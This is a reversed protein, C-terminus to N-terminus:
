APVGMLAFAYKPGAKRDRTTLAIFRAGTLTGFPQPEFAPAHLYIPMPQDAKLSTSSLQIEQRIRALLEQPSNLEAHVSYIWNWQQQSWSGLTLRGDELNVLWGSDALQKRHTQLTASFATQISKVRLQPQGFHGQLVTFLSQPIAVSLRSRGPGEASFGFHWEASAHTGYVDDFNLRAMALEEAANRLEARWPFSAYRALKDSLVIHLRTTRSQQAMETVVRALGQWNDAAHAHAERQRVEVARQSWGATKVAQVRDPAIYLSLTDPFLLSM